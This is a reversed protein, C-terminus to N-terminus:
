KKDEYIIDYAKILFKSENIRIMENIKWERELNKM